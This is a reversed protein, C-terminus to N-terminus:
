KNQGIWYTRYASPSIGIMKTFVTSFYNINDYGVLTAIQTVSYGTNILLSQAEGIRRRLTYQILSFGTNRKFLHSLYYPNINFQQAVASLSIAEWYHSDIYQKVQRILVLTNNQMKINKQPLQLIITILAALLYRCIETGAHLNHKIQTDMIDLITNIRPAYQGSQLVAPYELDLLCNQKKGKIKLGNIGCCYVTMDSGIEAVEDHLVGQNFILIDGAKTQYKENGILHSGKGKVIFVIEVRDDHKHMLRPFYEQMTETNCLYLLQPLTGNEFVSCKNEKVFYQLM